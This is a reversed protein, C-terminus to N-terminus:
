GVDKLVADISARMEKLVSIVQEDKRDEEKLHQIYWLANKFNLVLKKENYLDAVTSNYVQDIGSTNRAFIDELAKEAEEEDFGVNNPSTAIKGVKRFDTISTITGKLYKDILTDRVRDLDIEGVASPLNNMVTKLAGEMELFFDETLKQKGKPKNLEELIMAKYKEPLAILLKCRRITGRSLGTEESLRDEKPPEGLEKSLLDIVVTIKNAITFYDWQERLAHINFMMLLNQLRSPRELVVAPITALNLKQCVRWRREGDILIYRGRHEYVSIPVQVGFKKVSLLLSDMEEQRFYIRPNDENRRILDIPINKLKATKDM